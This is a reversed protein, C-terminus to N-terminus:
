READFQPGLLRMYVDHGLSRRRDTWAALLGDGLPAVAPATRDEVFSTETQNMMIRPGLEWGPATVRRVITHDQGSIDDEWAIAYTGDALRVIEPYDQENHKVSVYKPLSTPAGKADFARFLIDRTPGENGTWVMLFGGGPAGALSPDLDGQGNPSRDFGIEGGVPTLESGLIRARLVPGQPGGEVDWAVAIRDGELLAADVNRATGGRQDGVQLPQGQPAGKADFRQVMPGAGTRIWAVLYGARGPLPLVDAAWNDGCTQGPDVVFPPTEPRGNPKFLQGGLVWGGPSASKWTVLFQGSPAVGVSPYRSLPLEPDVGEAGDEAPPLGVQFDRGRFSGDATVLRAFIHEGGLRRDHWVVVAREGNSGIRAANQDASAEDTNWREDRRTLDDMSLLRTYVDGHGNRRDTWGVVLDSAMPGASAIWPGKALYGEPGPLQIPEPLLPAGEPSLLLVQIPGLFTRLDEDRQASEVVVALGGTWGAVDVQATPEAFPQLDERDRQGSASLHRLAYSAGNKVLVWWGGGVSDPLIRMPEGPGIEHIAVQGDARRLLAAIEGATNWLCLYDGSATRAARLEKGSPPGQPNLHLEEGEPAWQGETRRVLQGKVAGLESWLM